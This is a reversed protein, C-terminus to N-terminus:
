GCNRGDEGNLCTYFGSCDDCEILNVIKLIGLELMKDVTNHYRKLFERDTESYRRLENRCRCKIANHLANKAAGKTSWVRKKNPMIVREGNLKIIYGFKEKSPILIDKLINTMAEM